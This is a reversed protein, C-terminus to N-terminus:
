KPSCVAIVFRIPDIPEDYIREGKQFFYRCTFREELLTKFEPLSWVQKHYPNYGRLEGIPASVIFEKASRRVNTLFFEPNELHEITEFSVIVDYHADWSEKEFDIVRNGCLLQSDYGDVSKAVASLIRTGYGTGCAMDATTKQVCFQRAFEYRVVHEREVRDNYEGLTVRERAPKFRRMFNFFHGLFRDRLPHQQLQM